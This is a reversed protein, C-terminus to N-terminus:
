PVEYFKNKRVFVIQNNTAPDFKKATDSPKVPYRYSNFLWRYSSMALPTQGAYEPELQQSETLDRFSLLAKLLTAARRAPTKITKDDLHVYFYSVSFVVPERYGTFAFDNWWDSLWNDRGPEAARGELRSQLEKALDSSVFEDVAKKTKEYVAPTVHPKVSELYKSATSSLTPVPLRPLSKEFRLMPGVCTDVSYGPPVQQKRPTSFSM